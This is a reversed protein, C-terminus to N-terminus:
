PGSVRCCAGRRSLLLLLHVAKKEERVGERGIQLFSDEEEGQKNKKRNHLKTLTASILAPVVPDSRLIIVVSQSLRTGPSFYSLRFFLCIFFLRTLLVVTSDNGLGERM